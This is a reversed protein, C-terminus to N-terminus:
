GKAKDIRDKLIDVEYRHFQKDYQFKHKKGNSDTFEFFFYYDTRHSRNGYIGRKIRRETERCDTIESYSYFRGNGIGTQYYFGDGSILVKYFIFRYITLIFIVATFATLIGTFWFAGNNTKYLWLTIGGFLASM